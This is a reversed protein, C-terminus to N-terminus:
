SVDVLGRTQAPQPGAGSLEPNGAAAGVDLEDPEVDMEEPRVTQRTYLFLITRREVDGEREYGYLSGLLPLRLFHLESKEASERVSRFIALIRFDLFRMESTNADSRRAFLKFIPSELFGIGQAETSNLYEFLRLVRLDLLKLRTSEESREFTVLDVGAGVRISDPGGTQACGFAVAALLAILLVRSPEHRM